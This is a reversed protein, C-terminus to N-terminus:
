TPASTPRASAPLWPTGNTSGRQSARGSGELPLQCIEPLEGMALTQVQYAGAPLMLYSELVEVVIKSGLTALSAFDCHGQDAVWRLAQYDARLSSQPNADQEFQRVQARLEINSLASMQPLARLYRELREFPDVTNTAYILQGRQVYLFWELGAGRVHLCGSSLNNLQRALEAPSCQTPAICTEPM